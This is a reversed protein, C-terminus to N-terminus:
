DGDRKWERERFDRVWRASPPWDRGAWMGFGIRKFVAAKASEASDVAALGLRRLLETKEEPTLKAIEEVLREVAM